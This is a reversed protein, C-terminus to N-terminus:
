HAGFRQQETGREEVGIGGVSDPGVVLQAGNRLRVQLADEAVALGQTRGLALGLLVGAVLPQNSAALPLRGCAGMPRRLNSCHCGKEGRLLGPSKLHRVSLPIVAPRQEGSRMLLTYYFHM